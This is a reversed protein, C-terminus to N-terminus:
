ADPTTHTATEAHDGVNTTITSILGAQFGLKRTLSYLLTAISTKGNTGTVGIVKMKGSPHDFWASSLLGLLRGANDTQVYLVRDSLTEPLDECVIVSAGKEIAAPIFRHGDTHSGKQAVFCCNREVKRSDFIISEVPSNLDGITQMVGSAPKLQNWTRM